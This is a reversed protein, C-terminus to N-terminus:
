IHILSLHERALIPDNLFSLAIWGSFWEAEAYEPTGQELSHNNVIKYATQYKKKYILSRGIISREVWWKDPRVMYSKTNKINLLIELSSDVRGRKRRWKLRDYNLGPDNRFSEPVKSIANDVGYSKSMLLQRATYLLQYDKPLYRLMRKLDWYKNEWALYDARSIHDESQRKYM